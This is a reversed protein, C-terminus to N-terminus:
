LRLKKCIAEILLQISDKISTIIAVSEFNDNELAPIYKTKYENYLNARQSLTNEINLLLSIYNQLQKSYDQFLKITQSESDTLFQTYRDILALSDNALEQECFPCRNGKFLRVGEEIFHQKSKIKAKFEGSFSSLNYQKDLDSVITQMFNVDISVNDILLIDDLNEPTSKVKNYDALLNDVTKSCSCKEQNISSLIAEINLLDKYEQLRKIDRISDINKDSLNSHKKM